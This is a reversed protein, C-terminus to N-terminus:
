RCAEARLEARYASWLRVIDGAPRMDEALFCLSDILRQQQYTTLVDEPAPPPPMERKPPLDRAARLRDRTLPRGERLVVM